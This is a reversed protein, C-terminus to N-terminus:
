ARPPRQMFEVVFGDPDLVYVYYAGPGTAPESLVPGGGLSQFRVGTARMRDCLAPLDDVWFAVHGAPVNKPQADIRTGEPAVYQILELRTGDPEGPARLLAVRLRAGEYGVIRGVYARAADSVGTLELGVVNRYFAVSRELDSVTVAVHAFAIRETM